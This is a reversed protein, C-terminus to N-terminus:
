FSPKIVINNSKYSCLASFVRNISSFTTKFYQVRKFLFTPHLTRNSFTLERSADSLAYRTLASMIGSLAVDLNIKGRMVVM